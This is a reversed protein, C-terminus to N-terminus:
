PKGKGKEPAKSQVPVPKGAKEEKPPAPEKPADKEIQKLIAMTLGEPFAGDAKFHALLEGAAKSREEAAKKETEVAAQYRRFTDKADM